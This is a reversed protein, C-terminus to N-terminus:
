PRSKDISLFSTPLLNGNTIDSKIAEFEQESVPTFQVQDGASLLSPQDWIPNFLPVPCRGVLHWGGPSEWPYISTQDNAIAVSGAPVRVRPEKRRPFRIKEDIESMFPFGPLFGILLVDFPINSHLDIVENISIGAQRAVDDIDPAFEGRYCSPLVWLKGQSESVDVQDNALQLVLESVSSITTEMPDLYISLSRVASIIELIGRLEGTEIKSNVQARLHSIRRSGEVGKLKSFEITFACDGLPLLRICM